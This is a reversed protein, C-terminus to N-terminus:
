ESDFESGLKRLYVLDKDFMFQYAVYILQFVQIRGKAEINGSFTKHEFDPVCIFHEGWLGILMWYYGLIQGTVAPDDFGFNVYANWKRPLIHKLLRIIQHKAKGVATKTRERSLIEICKNLKEKINVGKEWLDKCKQLISKIVQVIRAPISFLKAFFDKLKDWLSKPKEAQDQEAAEERADQPQATTRADAATQAKATTRTEAASQPQATTRADATSKAEAASQPETRQMDATETNVPRKESNGNKAKRKKKKKSKEKAKKRQKEKKPKPNLFDAIPIGLLRLICRKGKEGYDLTVSVFHFLWHVKVKATLTEGYSANIRYSIPFFVVLLILLILLGLLVLLVIGIIKLILLVIEM